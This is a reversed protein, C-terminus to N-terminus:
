DQIIKFVENWMKESENKLTQSRENLHLKLRAKDEDDILKDLKRLIEQNSDDVQVIGELFKYDEFLMQYKHSWGTALSPVGQSLASVLGHFRSGITGECQGLIGKIKLPDTEAIIELGGGVAENLQKALMMDKEGEHVLIFPAQNKKILYDICNVMFPIYLASKGLETRDIMRYNPVICFRNEKCDFYQPVIGDILNTFDPAIKLNTCNGAVDSLYKYSTRDRAFVVDAYKLVKKMAKINKKSKYPGFAQPMLIVKSGNKKWRKCSNALELCSRDGWQDSYAFGAADIVIDVEKDTVIGYMNRIKQPIFNALFGWQVGMRWLQAKSYFGFDTRKQFSASGSSTTPAMAYNANPFKSKLKDLLAFLMLEAGKNVFGAKRIEILVKGEIM